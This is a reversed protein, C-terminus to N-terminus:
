STAEQCHTAGPEANTRLLTIHVEYIDLLEGGRSIYNVPIPSNIHLNWFGGKYLLWISLSISSIM